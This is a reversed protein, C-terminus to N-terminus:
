NRKTTYDEANGDGKNREAAKKASNIRRRVTGYLWMALSGWAVVATADSQHKVLWEWLYMTWGLAAGFTAAFYGKDGKLTLRMADGIVSLGEIASKIM